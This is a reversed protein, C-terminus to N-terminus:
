GIWKLNLNNKPPNESNPHVKWSWQGKGVEATVPDVYGYPTGLDMQQLVVSKTIYLQQGNLYAIRVGGGNFFGLENGDIRIHFGNADGLQANEGYHAIKRSNSWIDIGGSPSLDMRSAGNVVHLGGEDLALHTAIYQSVAQDIDRVEYYGEPSSSPNSQAAVVTYYTKESDVSTDTSLIYIGNVLEYYGNHNPNGTPNDVITGTLTFYFKGDLVEQDSTLQYTGHQSIWTLAGVVDEVVGLQTISNNAANYAKVAQDGANKAATTAITAASTAEDARAKAREAEEQATDASEMANLAAVEAIAAHSDAAQAESSAQIAKTDDTAPATYNGTIWARGGAVRVQVVDGEKASTTKGVPTAEIGGPINVWITDDTVSIVTAQTDYGTKKGNDREDISKQLQAALSDIGTM